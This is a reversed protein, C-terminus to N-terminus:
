QIQRRMTLAFLVFFYVVLVPWYVPVDFIESTTCLIALVTARTSALRNSALTVPQVARSLPIVSVLVAV